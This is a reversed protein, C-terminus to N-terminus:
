VTERLLRLVYFFIYLLARGETAAGRLRQASAGARRQEATEPPVWPSYCAPTRMGTDTGGARFLLESCTAIVPWQRMGHAPRHVDDLSLFWMHSLAGEHSHPRVGGLSSRQACYSLSRSVCKAASDHMRRPVDCMVCGVDADTHEGWGAFNRVWRLGFRFKSLQCSSLMLTVTRRKSRAVWAVLGWHQLPGSRKCSANDCACSVASGDASRTGSFWRLRLCGHGVPAIHPTMNRKGSRSRGFGRGRGQRLLLALVLLLVCRSAHMRSHSASNFSPRVLIPSEPAATSREFPTKFDAM